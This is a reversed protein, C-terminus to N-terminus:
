RIILNIALNKATLGKKGFRLTFFVNLGNVREICKKSKSARNLNPTLYYNTLPKKIPM